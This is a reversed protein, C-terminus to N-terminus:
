ATLPRATAFIAGTGMDLVVTTAQRDKGAATLWGRRVSM